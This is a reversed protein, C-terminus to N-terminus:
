KGACPQKRIIIWIICTFLTLKYNYCQWMCINISLRQINTALSERDGSPVIKMEFLTRNFHDENGISVFKM